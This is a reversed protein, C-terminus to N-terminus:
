ITVVRVVNYNDVYLTSTEAYSHATALSIWTKATKNYAVVDDSVTYTKGNYLVTNEDLWATNPVNKLSTLEKIGAIKEGGVSVAIGIFEGDYKSSSRTFSGVTTEGNKVELVHTSDSGTVGGNDDYEYTKTTEVTALGYTYNDGTVDDLVLINVDGRWDKGMYSIKGSSVTTGSIDEINIARLVGGSVTEYIMVNDALKSSGVTKNTLDIQAASSDSVKSLTVEGAKVSSVRVIQGELEAARTESYSTEGTIELGSFLRVTASSTSVSTAIGVANGRVSSLSSSVAGAVQMDETLLLTINQGLELEALMDVASPLVKFETGLIQVTDAAKANPYCSEYYGTLRTDSIRITDTASDYTAVDYEQLDGRTAPLGNKYISYTSSGSLSELGAVSGDSTVIIADTASTATGIFVHDINGSIGMHLTLSAGNNVWAFVDSWQQEEGNRYVQTDATLTYKTGTSDKIYLPASEAVTIVKSSGDRNPIFTMVRGDKNLLLTGQRGNLMGNSVSNAMKYTAGSGLQVAGNTGDSATASSSLLVTNEVVSSAVGAAYSAGDKTDCLFLNVFLLVADGRSLNEDATINVGSTLGVTDAMAMYGDPWVAGVDADSYGLLRMLITVAQASTISEDPRFTGDAFGNITQLGRAAMNIYSSAWHSPRVDPFITYSSYLGLQNSGDQAYVAMKSFQGRTLSTEPRFTGDEFGDIIGMLRLSEIAVALEPDSVDKFGTNSASAPLACITIALILSLCLSIGRELIKKM